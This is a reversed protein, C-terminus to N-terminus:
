VADRMVGHYFTRRHVPSFGHQFIRDMHIKTGYGKHSSFGYEPYVFDYINMIRDRIVKAVISAAAISLSLGDGGTISEWAYPLDSSLRGDMLLLIDKHSSKLTACRALLKTVALDLAFKVANVINVHDIVKENMVGVGYDAKEIIEFFAKQRQSSSLKKSDDIRCNFKFSKLFVAGVVVPGALPGRGAEDVGIIISYGRKGAAHELKLM